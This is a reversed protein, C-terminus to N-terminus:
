NVAEVRSQPSRIAALIAEIEDNLNLALKRWCALIPVLCNGTRSNCHLNTCTRNVLNYYSKIAPLSFRGKFSEAIVTDPLKLTMGFGTKYCVIGDHISLQIACMDAVVEHLPKGQLYAIKGENECNELGLCAREILGNVDDRVGAIGTAATLILAAAVIFAKM